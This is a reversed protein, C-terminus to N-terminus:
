VRVFAVCVFSQRRSYNRKTHSAHCDRGFRPVFKTKAIQTGPTERNQKTTPKGPNPPLSLYIFKKISSATAIKPRQSYTQIPLLLRSPRVRQSNEKFRSKRRFSALQSHAVWQYLPHIRRSSRGPHQSITGRSSGPAMSSPM